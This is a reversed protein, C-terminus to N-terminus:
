FEKLWTEGAGGELWGSLFNHKGDLHRQKPRSAAAAVCARCLITGPYLYTLSVFSIFNM